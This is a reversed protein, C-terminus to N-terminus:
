LIMAHKLLETWLPLPNKLKVYISCVGAMGAPMRAATPLCGSLTKM